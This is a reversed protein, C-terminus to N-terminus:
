ARIETLVRMWHACVRAGAGRQLAKDAQRAAQLWNRTREVSWRDWGPPVTRLEHALLGRMTMTQITRPLKLACRRSCVVRQSYRGPGEWRARVILSGCVRCLKGATGQQEAM